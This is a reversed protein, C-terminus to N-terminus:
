GGKEKDEPKSDRQRMSEEGETRRDGLRITQQGATEFEEPM